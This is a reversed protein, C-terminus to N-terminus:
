ASVANAVFGASLKAVVSVTALASGTIVDAVYAGDPVTRVPVATVIM